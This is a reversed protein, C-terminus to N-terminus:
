AETASATHHTHVRSMGQVLFNDRKLLKSDYNLAWAPRGPCDSQKDERNISHDRQTLSKSLIARVSDRELELM